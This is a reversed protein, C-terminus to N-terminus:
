STRSKKKVVNDCLRILLDIGTSDINEVDTFDLEVFRKDMAEKIKQKSDPAIFVLDGFIQIKEFKM